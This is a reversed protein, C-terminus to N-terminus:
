ARTVEIKWNACALHGEPFSLVAAPHDPPAPYAIVKWRDDETFAARVGLSDPTTRLV